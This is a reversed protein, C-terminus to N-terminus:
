RNREGWEKLVYLAWPRVWTARGSQFRRWVAAVADPDLVDAVAGGRRPDLLKAEVEARLEGRLWRAFPLVFGM